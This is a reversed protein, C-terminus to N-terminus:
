QPEEIAPPAPPESYTGDENRITGAKVTDDVLIFQAAVEAVFYDSIDTSTSHPVFIEHVHNDVIRAYKM